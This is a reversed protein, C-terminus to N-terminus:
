GGHSFLTPQRLSYGNGEECEANLAVEVRERFPPHSAFLIVQLPRPAVDEYNLRALKVHTSIFAEPDCVLELSMKDAAIERARKWALNAPRLVQFAVFFTLFLVPLSAVDMPSSYHFRRFRAGRKLIFNALALVFFVTLSFVAYSRREDPEKWHALEHAMIMTIERPTFTEILTDYLVIRESPGSGTLYANVKKTRRSADVVLVDELQLGTRTALGELRDRLEGSELPRFDSYIHSGYPALVVYGFIAVSVGAWLLLWWRSGVRAMLGYIGFVMLAFLLTGICLGKAYDLLWLSLTYNSLGHQLDYWYTRYFHQPFLFLRIMFLFFVCYLLVELWKRGGFLREPIKVIRALPPWRRGIRVLSPNKYCWAASRQAIGKLTRNLGTIILVLYFALISGLGILHTWMKWRQYQKWTAIEEETFFILPDSPDGPCAKVTSRDPSADEATTSSPSAFAFVLTLVVFVLLLPFWTGAEPPPQSFRQSGRDYAFM